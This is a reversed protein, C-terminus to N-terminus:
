PRRWGVIVHATLWADETNCVVIRETDGYPTGVTDDPQKVTLIGGRYRPLGGLDIDSLKKESRTLLVQDGPRLENLGLVTKLAKGRVWKPKKM